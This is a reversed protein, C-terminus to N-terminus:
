SAIKCQLDRSGGEVNDLEIHEIGVVEGGMLGM